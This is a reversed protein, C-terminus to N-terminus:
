IQLPYGAKSLKSQLYEKEWVEYRIGGSKYSVRVRYMIEKTYVHHFAEEVSFTTDGLAFQIKPFFNRCTDSPELVCDGADACVECKRYLTFRPM